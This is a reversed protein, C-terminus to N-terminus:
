LYREGVKRTFIEYLGLEIIECVRRSGFLRSRSLIKWYMWTWDNSRVCSKECSKDM